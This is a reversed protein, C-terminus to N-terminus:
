SVLCEMGCYSSTMFTRHNGEVYLEPRSLIHIYVSTARTWVDGGNHRQLWEMLAGIGGGEQQYFRQETWAIHRAFDKRKEEDVGCLVLINLELLRRSSGLEFLDVGNALADDICRYGAMMNVRVEDSMADCQASLTANIGAFNTQVARLASEIQPLNLRSAGM